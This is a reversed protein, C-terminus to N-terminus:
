RAEGAEGAALSARAAAVAVVVVAVAVAALAHRPHRCSFSPAVALRRYLRLLRASVPAAVAPPSGPWFLAAALSAREAAPFLWALSASLRSVRSWAWVM